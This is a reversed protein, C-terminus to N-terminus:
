CESEDITYERQSKKKTLPFQNTTTTKPQNVITTVVYRPKSIHSSANAMLARRHLDLLSRRVISPIRQPALLQQRAMPKNSTTEVHMQYTGHRLVDTSSGSKGLELVSPSPVPESISQKGHLFTESPARILITTRPSADITPESTARILPITSLRPTQSVNKALRQRHVSSSSSTKNHASYNPYIPPPNCIRELKRALNIVALVWLGIIILVLCNETLSMRYFSDEMKELFLFVSSSSAISNNSNM